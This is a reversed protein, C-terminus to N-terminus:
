FILATARSQRGQLAYGLFVIAGIVILRSAIMEFLSAQPLNPSESWLWPVVFWSVVTVGILVDRRFRGAVLVLVAALGTLLAFDGSVFKLVILVFVIQFLVEVRTKWSSM